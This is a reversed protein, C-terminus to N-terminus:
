YLNYVDIINKNTLINQLMDINQKNMMTNYIDGSSNEKFYWENNNYLSKLDNIEFLSIINLSIMRRLSNSVEIIAKLENKNSSYSFLCLDVCFCVMVNDNPRRYIFCHFDPLEDKFMRPSIVGCKVKIEGAKIKLLTNKFYNVELSM